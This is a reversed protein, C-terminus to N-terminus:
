IQPNHSISENPSSSSKLRTLILTLTLSLALASKMYKFTKIGSLHMKYCQLSVDLDCM